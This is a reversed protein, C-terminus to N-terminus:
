RGIAYVHDRARLYLIGESIAPTAVIPEPVPSGDLPLFARGTQVRFTDGDEGALYIVGDAAVPSAIVRPNDMDGRIRVSSPIHLARSKSRPTLLMDMRKRPLNFEAEGTRMLDLPKKDLQELLDRLTAADPPSNLYEIVQPEIGREQLLALTQRSKSCRPNHYITAQM